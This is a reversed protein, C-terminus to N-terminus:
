TDIVWDSMASRSQRIAQISCCSRIACCIATIDTSSLQKQLFSEDRLCQGMLRLTKDSGREDWIGTWTYVARRVATYRILNNNEIVSLLHLFAEPQGADMTECIEVTIVRTLFPVFCWFIVAEYKICERCSGFRRICSDFSTM